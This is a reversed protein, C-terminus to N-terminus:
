YPEYKLLSNNWRVLDGVKLDKIMKFVPSMDVDFEAFNIEQVIIGVRNYDFSNDSFPFDILCDKYIKKVVFKFYFLM